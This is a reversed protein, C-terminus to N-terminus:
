PIQRMLNGATLCKTLNVSVFQSSKIMRSKGSSYTEHEKHSNGYIRQGCAPIQTQLVRDTHHKLFMFLTTLLTLPITLSKLTQAICSLYMVFKGKWSFHNLITINSTFFTIKQSIM